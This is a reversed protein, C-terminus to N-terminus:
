RSMNRPPRDWGIPPMISGTRIIPLSWSVILGRWRRPPPAGKWVWYMTLTMGRKEERDRSSLQGPGTLTYFRPCRTILNRCIRSWRYPGATTLKGAALCLVKQTSRFVTVGILCLAIGAGGVLIGVLDLLTTPVQYTTAYELVLNPVFLMVCLLVMGLATLKGHKRYEWRAHLLAVASVPVTLALLFTLMM